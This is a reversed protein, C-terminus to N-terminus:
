DAEIERYNESGCCPCISIIDDAKAEIITPREFEYGCYDCKYNM